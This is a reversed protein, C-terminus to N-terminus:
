NRGTSAVHLSPNRIPSVMLSDRPRYKTSTKLSTHSFDEWPLGRMHHGVVGSGLIPAMQRYTAENHTLHKVAPSWGRVVHSMCDYMLIYTEDVLFLGENAWLEDKDDWSLEMPESMSVVSAVLM